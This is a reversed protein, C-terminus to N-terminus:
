RDAKIKTLPIQIGVFIFSQIRASTPILAIFNYNVKEWRDM